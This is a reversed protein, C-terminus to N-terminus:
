RDRIVWAILALGAAFLILLAVWGFGDLGM